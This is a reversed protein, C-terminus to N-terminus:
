GDGRERGEDSGGYTVAQLARTAVSMGRRLAEKGEEVGFPASYVIDV